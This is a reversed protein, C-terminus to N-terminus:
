CDKSAASASVFRRGALVEDVALRLESAMRRKVVYANAGAEMAKDVFDADDHVTLFVIRAQSGGDRLRRAVELGGLGPMSIDLIIVDPMLAAAAEFAGLGDTESGVIDFPNGLVDGVLVQVAPNDDVILVRARRTGIPEGTEDASTM